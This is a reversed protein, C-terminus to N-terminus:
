VSERLRVRVRWQLVACRVQPLLDAGRRSWRMQQAKNMRRNVLFNAAGETMSTGVRPGAPITQCIQRAAYKPRPSLHRGRAVRAVAQPVFACGDRPSWAGGPLCAHGQPRSRTYATRKPRAMGSGGTCANSKRSMVAKAQTRGPTDTPLGGAAQKAHRLRMAIHSWDAIPSTKCGAELLISRLGSAGDTFATLETDAAQCVTELSRRILTAIETETKAVARVGGGGSTEVNGVRVELHREGDHCGRILTSEVTVTIALAGAGPTVTAGNRLQEGAKFNTAACRRRARGPSGAQPGGGKKGTRQRSRGPHERDQHSSGPGGFREIADDRSM